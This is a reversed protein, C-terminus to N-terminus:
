GGYYAQNHCLWDFVLVSNNWIKITGFTKFLSHSAYVVTFLARGWRTKHLSIAKDITCPLCRISLPSSSWRLLDGGFGNAMVCLSVLCSRSGPKVAPWSVSQAPASPQRRASQSGQQSFSQNVSQLYNYSYGDENACCRVNPSLAFPQGLTQSECQLVMWVCFLVVSSEDRRISLGM